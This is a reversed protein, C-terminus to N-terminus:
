FNYSLKRRTKSTGHGAVPGVGAPHANVYISYLSTQATIYLRNRKPGGFCLNSVIEPVLIRGILTGDPAYVRVADASSAWLNGGRDVRFGDFFGADCEALTGRARASRSDEALDYAKIACPVGQVHSAGTDSVYLITEDPSFALGNPQVLDTIVAAIEGNAKDFRYVYSGGIEPQAIMGEYHSDIGYIPDTFWITGDSKVVVDNPSNLRKGHVTEVLRRWSGDHELRSVCRRGHECAVVRGERDLTHGNQNGCHTEFVSVSGDCEDYRLLRDNPIDSWLLHRAAPVYVPGEAWRSGTWLQELKAHGIILKAFRTDLIEYDSM